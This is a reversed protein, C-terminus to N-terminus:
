TFYATYPKLLFTQLTVKIIREIQIYAQKTQDKPIFWFGSSLYTNVTQTIDIGNLICACRQGSVVHYLMCLYCRIEICLESESLTYFDLWSYERHFYYSHLM